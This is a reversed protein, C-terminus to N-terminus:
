RVLALIPIIAFFYSWWPPPFDPSALSGGSTSGNPCLFGVQFAVCPLLLRYIGEIMLIDM